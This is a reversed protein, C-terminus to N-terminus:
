FPIDKEDYEKAPAYREGIMEVSPPIPTAARQAKTKYKSKKKAKQTAIKTRAMLASQIAIRLVESIACQDLVWELYDTPVEHFPVGRHKGFPMSKACGASKSYDVYSARKTAQAKKAKEWGFKDSM